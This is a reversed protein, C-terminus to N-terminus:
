PDLRLGKEQADEKAKENLLGMTAVEAECVQCKFHSRQITPQALELKVLWMPVNCDPCKPHTAM